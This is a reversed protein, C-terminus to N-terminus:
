MGTIHGDRMSESNAPLLGELLYIFKNFAMAEVGRFREAFQEAVEGFVRQIVGANRKLFVLNGSFNQAAGRSEIRLAIGRDAHLGSAQSNLERLIVRVLAGVVEDDDFDGLSGVREREVQARGLRAIM